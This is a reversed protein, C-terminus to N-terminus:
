CLSHISVPFFHYLHTFLLIIYLNLIKAIAHGTNLDGSYSWIGTRTDVIWFKSVFFNLTFMEQGSCFLCSVLIYAHIDISYEPPFITYEDQLFLFMVLVTLNYVTPPRFDLWEFDAFMQLGFKKFTLNWITKSLIGAVQGSKLHNPERIESGM